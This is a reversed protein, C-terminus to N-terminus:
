KECVLVYALILAFPEATPVGKTTSSVFGPVKPKTISFEYM